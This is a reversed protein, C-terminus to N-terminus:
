GTNIQTERIVRICDETKQIYDTRSIIGSEYDLRAQELQAQAQKLQDYLELNDELNKLALESMKGGQLKSM